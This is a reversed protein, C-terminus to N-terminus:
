ASRSSRPSCRWASCSSSGHQRDLAATGYDWIAMSRIPLRAVVLYGVGVSLAGLVLGWQLIARDVSAAAPRLGGGVRRRYGIGLLALGIVLYTYYYFLKFSVIRTYSIELLLAAFSILLIELHYHGHGARPNATPVSVTDDGRAARPSHLDPAGHWPSGSM